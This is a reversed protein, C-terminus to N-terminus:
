ADAWVRIDRGLVIGELQGRTIMRRVTQECIGKRAAYATTSETVTILDALAAALERRREETAPRTPATM